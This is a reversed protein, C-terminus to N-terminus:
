SIIPLGLPGAESSVQTWQRPAFLSLTPTSAGGAMFSGLGPNPDTAQTKWAAVRAELLSLVLLAIDCLASTSQARPSSAGIQPVLVAGPRQSALAQLARPAMDNEAYGRAV